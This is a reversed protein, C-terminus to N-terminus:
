ARAFSDIARFLSEWDTFEYDGKPLGEVKRGKLVVHEIMQAKFYDYEAYRLAGAVLLSQTPKWGTSVLFADVYSQAESM